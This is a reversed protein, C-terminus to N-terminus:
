GVSSAHQNLDTVVPGADGSCHLFAEPFGKEGMAFIGAGAESRGDGFGHNLGVAAFDVKDGCRATAGSEEDGQRDALTGRMGVDFAVQKIGKDGLLTLSYPIPFLFHSRLFNEWCLSKRRSIRRSVAGGKSQGSTDMSSNEEKADPRVLLVNRVVRSGGASKGAFGEWFIKKASNERSGM